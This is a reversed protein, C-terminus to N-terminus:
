PQNPNPQAPRLQALSTQAPRTKEAEPQAGSAEAPKPGTTTPHEATSSRMGWGMPPPARSFHTSSDVFASKIQNSTHTRHFTYARYTNETPERM